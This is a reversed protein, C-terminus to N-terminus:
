IHSRFRLNCLEKIRCSQPVPHSISVKGISNRCVFILKL